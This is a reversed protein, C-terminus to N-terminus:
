ENEDWRELYNLIIGKQYYQMKFEYLQKKMLKNDELESIIQELREMEEKIKLIKKLITKTM